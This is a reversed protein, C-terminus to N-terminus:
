QLSLSNNSDCRMVLCPLALCSHLRAPSISRVELTLQIFVGEELEEIYRNLDQIYKFISEFLSYFRNGV